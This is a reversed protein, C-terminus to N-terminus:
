PNQERMWTRTLVHHSYQNMSRLIKYARSNLKMAATMGINALIVLGEGTPKTDIIGTWQTHHGGITDPKRMVIQNTHPLQYLPKWTASRLRTGYTAYYHVTTTHEDLNVIKALHYHNDDTNDLVAVFSGVNHSNDIYMRVNVPVYKESTYKSMHMINRKYTRNNYSIAFSTNGNSLAETIIVPGQYQLMHKPNKGMKEAERQSPPLYFTVRDGVAFESIPQGYSNLKNATRAREVAKINSIIENFANM